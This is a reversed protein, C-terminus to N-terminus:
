VSRSLRRLQTRLILGQVGLLIMMVGWAVFAFVYLPESRDGMTVDFMGLQGALGWWLAPTLYGAILNLGPIAACLGPLVIAFILSGVAWIYRKSTELLLMLQVLVTYNAVLTLSLALGLVAKSFNERTFPLLLSLGLFTIFACIFIAGFGPSKEGFLRDRIQASRRKGPSMNEARQAIAVEQRGRSWDLLMQRPTSLLFILPLAGYNTASAVLALQSFAAASTDGAGVNGIAFGLSLCLAYLTITYGQRKSITTATPKGFVRQLVRWLWYTLVALNAFLFIHPTIPDANIMLGAWKIPLPSSAQFSLGEIGFKYWTTVSNIFNILPIWVIAISAVIALGSAGGVGIVKRQTGGSFGAFMSGTFILSGWALLGLYFSVFFGVPMAGMLGSFLHLPLLLLLSFYGLIPVGLLKGLLISPSSRPSLRLFNLTGKQSEQSIDNVLAYAGPIYLAYPIIYTLTKFLDGWWRQWNLVCGIRKASYLCYVSNPRGEDPLQALFFLVLLIQLVGLIGITALVSRWQFRGRLERLLQPNRDGLDNLWNVNMNKEPTPARM